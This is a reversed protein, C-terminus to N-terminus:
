PGTTSWAITDGTEFGDAFVLDDLVTLMFDDNGQAGNSDTANIVVWFPSQAANATTATGTILGEESISMSDPFDGSVSFTVADGEPDNFNVSVDLSFPVGVSARQPGIPTIVQPRANVEVYASVANTSYELELPLDTSAMEGTSSAETIHTVRVIDPATGGADLAFGITLFYNKEAGHDVQLLSEDDDLIYTLVGNTLTFPSGDMDARTDVWKDFVGDGDDLFISISSALSSLEGSTLPVGVTSEFLLELTAMEVADDGSRGRHAMDITLLPVETAANALSSLVADETPLALHGGRNKWWAIDDASYATGLIDLRGDGDLDAAHAFVM